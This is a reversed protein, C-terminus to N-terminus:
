RRVAHSRLEFDSEHCVPVVRDPDIEHGHAYIVDHDLARTWEEKKIVKGKAVHIQVDDLLKHASNSGSAPLGAARKDAPLGRLHGTEVRLALVVHGTEGHSDDIIGVDNVPRSNAPSVPNDADGRAPEM